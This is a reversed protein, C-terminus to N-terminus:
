EPAPTSGDSGLRVHTAPSYPEVVPPAQFVKMASMRSPAPNVMDALGDDIVNGAVDDAVDVIARVLKPLKVPVTLREVVTDDDLRVAERFGVLTLRVAPEVAVEVRVALEEVGPVYVTVTVPLLEVPMEWEVGTVANTTPNPIEAVGGVTATGAPDEPVDVTVNFLMLPKEPVMLRAVVMEGESLLPGAMERLEVLTVSLEPPDADEVTVIEVVWM